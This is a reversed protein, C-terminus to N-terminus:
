QRRQRWRGIKYGSWGVFCTWTLAMILEPLNNLIAVMFM